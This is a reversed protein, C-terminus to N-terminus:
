SRNSSLRQCLTSFASLRVLRSRVDKKGSLSEKEWETLMAHTARLFLVRKELKQPKKGAADYESLAVEIASIASSVKQQTEAELEVTDTEFAGMTM